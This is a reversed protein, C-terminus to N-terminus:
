WRRRGEGVWSREDVLGEGWGGGDRDKAAMLHEEERDGRPQHEPSVHGAGAGAVAAARLVVRGGGIHSWRCANLVDKDARGCETRLLGSAAAGFPPYARTTSMQQVTRGADDSVSLVFTSTLAIEGDHGIPLGRAKSV